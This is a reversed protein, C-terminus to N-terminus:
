ASSKLHPRMLAQLWLMFAQLRRSLHKRHPYVLHVPMPAARAEPMLAVLEGSHLHHQVDFAPIQILGLGALACAIYTEANNASVRSRPQATHTQGDAVWEWPASRGSTPSVYDVVEHAALDQPGRPTGHRGLYAPSACNILEIEGLPRAVLSSAALPGIRLACDVGEHVLDVARDSSGLEVQLEPHLSLLEPLAPAILRRAIRSPVDVRLRGVARGAAPRFQQEIDEMDAILAAARELLAEGDQTLGVRRTTRNLLRAGLRTELQQMALSVTARPLGLQDAAQVFSRCAAIRVFVRLHDIRDM